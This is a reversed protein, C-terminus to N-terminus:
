GAAGLVSWGELLASLDRRDVAPRPAPAASAARAAARAATQSASRERAARAARPLARYTQALVAFAADVALPEAGLRWERRQCSGCRVMRLPEGNRGGLEIM